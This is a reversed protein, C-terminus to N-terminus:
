PRADKRMGQRKNIDATLHRIMNFSFTDIQWESRDVFARRHIGSTESLHREYVRTGKKTITYVTTAFKLKKSMQTLACKKIQEDTSPIYYVKEFISLTNETPNASNVM